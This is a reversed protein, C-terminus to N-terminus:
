FEGPDRADGSSYEYSGDWDTQVREDVNYEYSEFLMRRQEAEADDVRVNVMRRACRGTQPM